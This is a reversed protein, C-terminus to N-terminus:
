AGGGSRGRRAAGPPAARDTNQPAPGGAGPPSLGLPDEPEAPGPWDRLDLAAVVGSGVVVVNGTRENWVPTRLPATAVKVTASAASPAAVFLEGSILPVMVVGRDNVSPPASPEDPLEIAHSQLGTKPSLWLLERRAGVVLWEANSSLAAHRAEARWAVRREDGIPLALLEGGVVAFWHESGALIPQSLAGPLAARKVMAGGRFLWLEPENTGVGLWGGALSAPAAALSRPLQRSWLPGGWAALAYMRRDRGGFYVVGPPAWVVDTAVRSLPRHMWAVRGDARLAYLRQESTAVYVQGARDVAPTGVPVGSLNYSWRFAGDAALAHVYGEVTALYVSGDPAVGAGGSSPAAAQFRWALPPRSLAPLAEQPPEVAEPAEQAASPADPAAAAPAEIAAAPALPADGLGRCSGLGVVLAAAQLLM